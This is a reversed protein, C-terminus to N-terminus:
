RAAAPCANTRAAEKEVYPKIIGTWIVYGEPTLHIGDPIYLPRLQGLVKGDEWMVHAVDIYVLDSQQAALQRELENAKQQDAAFALRAPSAKAAILYVPTAGLVKRKLDMFKKLDGLVENPTLGNVVDNETAYMFIARPRYPTVIKDFFFTQDAITSAGLGRAFVPAPAMDSKLTKWAVVSASGIFLISCPDPPAQKDQALYADVRESYRLPDPRKQAAPAANLSYTVGPAAKPQAAAPGFAGLTSTLLALAGMLAVSTRKASM